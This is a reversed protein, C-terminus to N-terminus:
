IWNVAHGVAYPDALLFISHPKFPSIMLLPEMVSGIHDPAILIVRTIISVEYKIWLNDIYPKPLSVPCM